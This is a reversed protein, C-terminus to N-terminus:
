EDSWSAGADDSRYFNGSQDIIAIREPQTSSVAVALVAGSTGVALERWASDATRAFLGQDTGAYLTAAADPTVALAVVMGAPGPQPLDQWAAGGDTSEAVVSGAGAYVHQPDDPAVVLAVPARDAGPPMTIPEWTAGGDASTYIGQGAPATYLRLPDSPSGAFAHLDLGPLNNSQSAWTMGGDTSVYFINHGAAYMRDADAPPIALQMADVGTLTTDQWSAGADRSVKLGGHHGFYITDADTPDFALSHFDNTDFQYLAQGQATGSGDSSVYQWAAIALLLVVAGLGAVRTLLRQQQRKRAKQRAGERRQQTRNKAKSSQSM